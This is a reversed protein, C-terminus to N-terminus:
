LTDWTDWNDRLFKTSCRSLFLNKIDISILWTKMNLSVLHFGQNRPAVDLSRKSFSSNHYVLNTNTSSFIHLRILGVHGVIMECTPVALVWFHRAQGLHGKQGQTKLYFLKSYRYNTIQHSSIMRLRDVM